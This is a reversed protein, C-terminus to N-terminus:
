GNGKEKTISITIGNYKSKKSVMEGGLLFACPESVSYVGITDKVFQSKNFKDEVSKIEEITFIKLPSNFYQATDLIGAENKKVEVTGINKISKESFKNINLTEKVAEIIREGEVDKRCGIGININKPRLITYPIHLNDIKSSTVIIIGDVEININELDEIILLNNYNIVSDMESYFGITKGKIMMATIEKISEMDEMYYYNKKAFIDISEIGRNDSATTIVPTGQIKYAVWQALENAGGLHGSILSISFRGLDDVVVVAPDLTKDKIYPTIMRVAIGTASIFILGDYEEWANGLLNRLGGEIQSNTFHQVIYKSQEKNSLCVIKDGLAKGEETFSFCAIKM